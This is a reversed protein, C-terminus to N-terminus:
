DVQPAWQVGNIHGGGDAHVTNGTVYRAGESALFVALPGIDDTPDGMRGVPNAAEINAAMKPNAQAMAEFADTKAAPCIVNCCVQRPAWERAATRTLTHLAEKSANYDATYMHANVGNLSCINIVRGTGSKALEPLARKMSWFAAMVAVDYGGRMQEDTINELRAAKGPQWANNVLVDLGGFEAVAADVMAEVNDKCGVDTRQAIAATGYDRQIQQAAETARDFDIDAILVASGERAFARSIGRGVGSAGGTVIATRGDLLGM